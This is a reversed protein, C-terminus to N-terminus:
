LPAAVQNENQLKLALCKESNGNHSSFSLFSNLMLLCEGQQQCHHKGCVYSTSCPWRKGLVKKHTILISFINSTHKYM